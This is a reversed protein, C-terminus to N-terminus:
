PGKLRPFLKLANGRAIQFSANAEMSYEDLATGHWRITAPPAYPFDSGFLVNEPKAFKLLLDLQYTNSSLALDYYLERADELFEEASRDTLGYDPLMVAARTAIYPFTGGAHSVLVKCGSPGAFERIYNSMLLDVITRCTEHPYDIVPQPLKPNILNTDVAHTPHVFVVARRESLKTWIPKLSDHGLYNNNKGYRTYLTVGDARLVDLAYDIEALAAPISDLIPPLAAFFGFSEPSQDRVSAAYENVQRALTAAPSGSLVTTGPATLSLITTGINQEKM